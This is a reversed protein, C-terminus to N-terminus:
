RPIGSRHPLRLTVTTGEGEISALDVTGGHATVIQQVGALGLGSGAARARANSARYYPQFVRGLEAPPIGIGHDTVQISAWANTMDQVCTLVVSIEGGEPSYKVANGLVNALARALRGEDYLGICPQTAGELLLTHRESMRAHDAVLQRLLAALDVPQSDLELPRRLQLRATDLLDNIQQAMNRATRVMTELGAGIAGADAQPLRATRRQLLQGMSVIATLPNKLDHTMTALFEDRQREAIVRASIDLFAGVAGRVRGADDYLPAAYALLDLRVGDDRVVEIEIDRVETNRLAAVQVPMEEAMLQRGDQYIKFNTPRVDEPASASANIGPPVALLEACAPNLHIDTAAPDTAIGIGIPLVRLLTELELTRAQLAQAARQEADYLRARALAQACLEGVSRLLTIDEADFSRPMAFSLGIGGLVQAGLVLPIAVCAGTGGTAQVVIGPPYQEAYAEPSGLALVERRKVADSIPSALTASYARWEAEVVPAYGTIRANIFYTEDDSLLSLVMGNAGLVPSVASTIADAVQATSLAAGLAATLQHLLALREARRVAQERAAHEAEYLRAREMAQGCQRAFTLMLQRDDENLPRPQPASLGVAGIIREGALLPFTVVYHPRTHFNAMGPFRALADEHSHLVITEGTRVTEALPLPADLPFRQWSDVINGPYGISGLTELTIGDDALLVVSGQCAKLIAFAQDIIVTAVERSTAAQALAATMTHLRQARAAADEAQRRAEQERILLADREAETEKMRTIDNFLTFVAVPRSAGPAPLPTASVSLWRIGSDHPHFVGMTVDRVVQGTRLARMAPHDDGPFDTGDERIARWDPDASTRDQLDALSRGLIHEAAPNAEIIRGEADQFVVGKTMSAYLTYYWDGAGPLLRPNDASTSQDPSISGRTEDM